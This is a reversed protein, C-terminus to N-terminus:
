GTTSPGVAAALLPMELEAAAELRKGEFGELRKSHTPHELWEEVLRQVLLEQYDM